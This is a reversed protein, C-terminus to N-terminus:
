IKSYTLLSSISRIITDAWNQDQHFPSCYPRFVSEIGSSLVVVSHNSTPPLKPLFLRSQSATFPIQWHRHEAQCHSRVFSCHLVRPLIKICLTPRLTCSWYTQFNGYHPIALNSTACRIQSSIVCQDAKRENVEYIPYRPFSGLSM